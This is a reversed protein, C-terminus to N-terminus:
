IEAINSSTPFQYSVDVPTDWSVTRYGSGDDFDILVQPLVGRNSIFIGSPLGYRLTIALNDTFHEEEPTIAGYLQHETFALSLLSDPNPFVLYHQPNAIMMTDPTILTDPLWLTDPMPSFAGATTDFMVKGSVIADEHMRHFSIAMLSLPVDYLQRALDCGDAYDVPNVIVSDHIQAFLMDRYLNLFTARRTSIHGGWFSYPNAKWATDMVQMMSVTDYSFCYTYYPSRNHLIGSPFHKQGLYQFPAAFPNGAVQAVGERAGAFLVGTLLGVLVVLFQSHSKMRRVRHMKRLLSRQDDGEDLILLDEDFAALDNYPHRRAVECLRREKKMM